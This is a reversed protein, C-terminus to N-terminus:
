KITKVQPESTISSKISNEESRKVKVVDSSGSETVSSPSDFQEDTVSSEDPGPGEPYFWFDQKIPGSQDCQYITGASSKEGHGNVPFQYQKSEPGKPGSSIPFVVAGAAYNSEFPERARPM